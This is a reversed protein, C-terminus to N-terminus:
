FVPTGVRAGEENHGATAEEVSAYRDGVVVDRSGPDLNLAPHTVEGQLCGPLRHTRNVGLGGHQKGGGLSIPRGPILM